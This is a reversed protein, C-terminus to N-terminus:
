VWGRAVRLRFGFIQFSRGAPVANLGILGSSGCYTTGGNANAYLNSVAALPSHYSTRSDKSQKLTVFQFMKGDKDEAMGRDLTMRIDSFAIKALEAVIREVTM